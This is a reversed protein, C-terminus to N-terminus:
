VGCPPHDITGLGRKKALKAQDVAQTGCYHYRFRAGKRGLEYISMHVPTPPQFRLFAIVRRKFEELASGGPMKLAIYPQLPAEISEILGDYPGGLFEVRHAFSQQVRETHQPSM